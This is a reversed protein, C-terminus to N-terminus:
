RPQTPTTIAPSTALEDPLTATVTVFIYALIAGGIVAITVLGRWHLEQLRALRHSYASRTLYLAALLLVSAAPWALTFDIM